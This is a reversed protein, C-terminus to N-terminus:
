ILLLCFSLATAWEIIGSVQHHRAGPLALSKVVSVKLFAVFDAVGSERHLFASLMAARMASGRM